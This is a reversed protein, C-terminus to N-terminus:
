EVDIEADAEDIPVVRRNDVQMDEERIANEFTLTEYVENLDDYWDETISLIENGSDDIFVFGIIYNQQIHNPDSNSSDLHNPNAFLFKHESYKLFIDISVINFEDKRPTAQTRLSAKSRGAVFHTELVRLKSKVYNLRESILSSIQERDHERLASIARSKDTERKPLKLIYKQIDDYRYM